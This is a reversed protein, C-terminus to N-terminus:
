LNNNICSSFLSEQTIKASDLNKVGEKFYSEKLECGIFKRGKKISIYGESGIGMFWSAVTDGPNSWLEIGREIVDLQLPCIHKEDKDERAKVKNLTNSQNIDMWVPSAYRRWVEHSYKLGKETPENDGIFTQLGSGHKIPNINEGPKRMTVLYDPLGQRCKSSDKCLQKHMLGLAKTRTAEVLPNKWITVKSHYIWGEQQFARILDAPFDKLGIYGDREKMAPIDICHFSVLRGPKTVRFMEKVLFQFHIFFEDYNESNGMDMESNSYTYLEAFPPSFITYDISDSKVNKIEKCSDGNIATYNEKKIIVPKYNKIAPGQGKVNEQQLDRMNNVMEQAMNEADIEKRKINELVSGERESVIIHVNVTNKQGFRYCRRVAQYYQEYSDSLGVFAVNSCHQWNMGFGAIKPKTILKEIEGNSFGIMIGEKIENKQSGKIDQSHPIINNLTDSEDNLNCWIIWPSLDEGILNKVFESRETITDRRAKQRDQLTQAPFHFLMGSPKTESKIIHEHIKIEPLIFGDDDYGLDSPKRVMVSWECMWKWFDSEAHGKLRWKQTDGSDHLFFTSLMGTRDMVNLFESHNGLEMYDNPAPTATCALKYPHDKCSNILQNRFKGSYSKLISSEDLVIGTFLSLDIKDIKEYNTINIGPMVDKQCTIPNVQIGFKIGERVTQTSVALPALIIINGETKDYVRSAWELQMPTKGLGCDAFIAAKGKKLAWKVIDKQFDFLMPNLDGTFDFGSDSVKKIKSKLFNDYDM